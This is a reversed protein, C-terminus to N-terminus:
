EGLDLSTEYYGSDGYGAWMPVFGKVRSQLVRIKQKHWLVNMAADERTIQNDLWVYEATRAEEDVIYRADTLRKIVDENYYNWSRRKNGSGGYMEYLFNDPDNFDATWSTRYTPSEGTGRLDYWAASDMQKITAHIGVAELYACIADNVEIDSTSADTTQVIEMDFGDPYGAEALLAKAQEPDYPIAGLDPDYGPVGPALFTGAPTAAGYYQTDILTQRDIALQFAKRVRVDNFPEINENISLYSTGLVTKVNLNNAYAPDDRYVPIQDLAHDLDFIDLQGADFLMKETQPDPIIRILIGDMSNAGRWYDPNTKLFVHDNLVWEDLMFPGSGCFYEPDSGYLSTLPGGGAEDARDGAERNCLSWAPTSLCALFPAYPAELIIDLDYDGKIIIGTGELTDLNGDLMDGGGKIMDMWGSNRGAREPQLMRDVTYLVDDSTLMEGNHFKVDDRLHFSYTLGDDSVEWSEAVSPVTVNEGAANTETRVLTDMCNMMLIYDATTCAPDASEPEAQYTIRLVNEPFGDEYVVAATEGGGEGEGGDAPAPETGGGSKTCAAMSFVLALALLIALLKKM